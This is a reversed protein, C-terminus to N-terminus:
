GGSGDIYAADPVPCGEFAGFHISRQAARLFYLVETVSMFRNFDSSKKLRPMYLSNLLLSYPVARITPLRTLIGCQGAVTNASCHGRHWQSSARRAKRPFATLANVCLDPYVTLAAIM